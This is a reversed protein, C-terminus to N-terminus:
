PIEKCMFLYAIYSFNIIIITAFYFMANRAFKGLDFIIMSCLLYVAFYAPLMYRQDPIYFYALMTILIPISLLLLIKIRKERDSDRFVWYLLGLMLFMCIFLCNALNVFFDFDKINPLSPFLPGVLFAKLHILNELWYNPNNRICELGLKYFYMQHHMPHETNFEPSASSGFYNPAGIHVSIGNYFSKVIPPKCQCIFFNVGANGALAKLEGHSVYNIEILALFIVLFYGASFILGRIVSVFSPKKAFVIYLFFPLGILGSAPRMIIALGLFLGLAFLIKKNEYYTFLLYVSIIIIPVSINESLVFTNFYTLPDFLAYCITILWLQSVNKFLSQAILYFFFLSITSYVTHLFLIAELRYSSLNFFYLIKFLFFLYFHYCPAWAAWQTMSFNEGNFKDTAREWYGGMDSILHTKYDAFYFVYVLKLIFSTFLILGLLVKPNKKLEKVISM